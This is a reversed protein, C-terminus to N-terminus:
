PPLKETGIYRRKFQNQKQTTQLDFLDGIWFLEVMQNYIYDITKIYPPSTIALEVDPFASEKWTDGFCRSDGALVSAEADKPMKATFEAVRAAYENLVKLFLPKVAPVHKKHTHSVYTKLSQNDANSAKRVISSLCLILFNYVRTDKEKWTDVAQRVVGLDEINRENFWHELHAAEPRFSSQGNDHVLKTIGKVAVDLLPKEIPTTKVASILRALPDIDIGISKYGSLSSEVLTTGSGCFPDLIVAVKSPAYREIAWRPIHPIFRGAYKHILHTTHTLGKNRIVYVTSRPPIPNKPFADLITLRTSIKVKPKRLCVVSERLQSRFPGLAMKQQSSTTLHRAVLLETVEFGLSQATQCLLADTPILISGYASNGIVMVCRGGPMMVESLGRLVRCM